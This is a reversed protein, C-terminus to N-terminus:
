VVDSYETAAGIFREGFFRILGGSAWREIVDRKADVGAFVNADEARIAAPFGGEDFGDSAFAIREGAFTGGHSDEAPFAPVNEFEAGEEADDRRVQEAGAGGFGGAPVDDDGAKETTGSNKGMMMRVWLLQSEGIASEFAQANGMECVTWDSAHRGAFGLAGQDGASQDVVGCGQEEVFGAVSEVDGRLEVEAGGHAAQRLRANGNQEDGVM